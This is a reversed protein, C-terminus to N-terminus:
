PASMVVRNRGSEKARYLAEDARILVTAPAEGSLMALGISVTLRGSPQSRAGAVECAEVQARVREAIEAAGVPDVDRLVLSFEEGGYRYPTDIERVAARLADAVARLAADGAGHGNRDNFIKFHDVDIMVVAGPARDNDEARSALAALDADLRRRNPLGTLADIRTLESVGDHQQAALLASGVMPALRSVAREDAANFPRDDPRVLLLVGVVRGNGAVPVALVSCPLGTLAPEDQCVQVVSQGTDAVRRLMGTDLQRPQLVGGPDDLVALGQDSVRVFAGSAAATMAIAETVAIRATQVADLSRTMRRGADLLRDFAATSDPDPGAMGRSGSTGAGRDRATPDGAVGRRSHRKMVWGSLAAAALGAIVASGLLAVLPVTSTAGSDPSPSAQSSPGSRSSRSAEDIQDIQDGASGDTTGVQENLQSLARVYVEPDVGIARGARMAERDVPGLRALARRCAPSLTVGQALARRMATAGDADASELWALLAARDMGQASYAWRDHVEVLATPVPTRLLNLRVLLMVEAQLAVAADTVADQSPGPTTAQDTTMREVAAAILGAGLRPVSAEAAMSPGTLLAIAAVAGIWAGRVNMVFGDARTAAIHAGVAEFM